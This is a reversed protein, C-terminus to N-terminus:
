HLSGDPRILRFQVDYTTSETRARTVLEDICTRDDHHVLALFKEFTVQADNTLGYLRKSQETAVFHRTVLDLDWLGVGSAEMALQRQAESMQESTIDTACVVIECVAQHAHCVPFARVRVLRYVGDSRRIHCKNEAPQGSLVVQRVM